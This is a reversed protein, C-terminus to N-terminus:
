NNKKEPITVEIRKSNEIVHYNTIVLGSESVLIGSGSSKQSDSEKNSEINKDTFKPYMKVYYIEINRQRGQVIDSKSARLVGDKDFTFNFMMYSGDNAFQKSAYLNENSGKTFHATVTHPSWNDGGLIVEYFDRNLNQTDKIIAVTAYNPEDQRYSGTIVTANASWIGEIDDIESINQKFYDRFDTETRNDREFQQAPMYSLQLLILLGCLLHIKNKM